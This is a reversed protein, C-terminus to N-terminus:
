KNAEQWRAAKSISKIVEIYGGAKIQARFEKVKTLYEEKIKEVPKEAAKEAAIYARLMEKLGAGEKYHEGFFDKLLKEYLDHRINEVPIQPASEPNALYAEIRQEIDLTIDKPAYFGLDAFLAAIYKSTKGVVVTQIGRSMNPVLAGLFAEDSIIGFNRLYLLAQTPAEAVTLKVQTSIVQAYLADTRKQLEAGKEKAADLAAIQDPSLYKHAEALAPIDAETLAAPIQVKDAPIYNNDALYKQEAAKVEDATLDKPKKVFIHKAALADLDAPTYQTPKPVKDAAVYGNDELYKQEAAKVEDATLDKPKKAFTHKSALADLNEPTYQTPKPVKDAAVYGNDELYKQEAAKVEDATLDKPKKAFTHKAALTDLDAPTYEVPKPVKDAAVYGNDELYKQEAAKVEDATLDKPKKAFTHKAALRELDSPNFTPPQVPKIDARPVYNNQRLYAIKAIALDTSNIETPQQGYEHKDALGPLDAPTLSPTLAAAPAMYPPPVEQAPVHPAATAQGSAAAAKEAAERKLREQKQLYTEVM